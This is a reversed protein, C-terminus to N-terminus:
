YLRAVPVGTKLSIQVRTKDRVLNKTTQLPSGDKQTMRALFLSGDEDYFAGLVFPVDSGPNFRVLTAAYLTANQNETFNFPQATKKPQPPITNQNIPVPERTLVAVANVTDLGGNGGFLFTNADNNKQAHQFIDILGTAASLSIAAQTNLIGGQENVHIKKGDVDIYGEQLTKVVTQAPLNFYDAAQKVLMLTFCDYVWAYDVHRPTLTSRAFARAAASQAPSTFNSRSTVYKDVFSVGVSHIYLSNEIKLSSLKQQVENLYNQNAAFFAIAHDTAVAIMATAYPSALYRQLEGAKLPKQFVAAREDATAKSRYHETIREIDSVTINSEFMMRDAFLAYLSILNAHTHLEKQPHLLTDSVERYYKISPDGGRPIESGAILVLRAEDACIRQALELAAPLSAGGLDVTHLDTDTLGLESARKVVDMTHHHEYISAGFSMFDTIYPRLAHFEIGMSQSAREVATHQFITLKENLSLQKYSKNQADLLREVDKQIADAAGFIKVASKM